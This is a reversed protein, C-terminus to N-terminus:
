RAWDIPVGDIETPWSSRALHEAAARLDRFLETRVTEHRMFGVEHRWHLVFSDAGQKLLIGGDFVGETSANPPFRGCRDVAEVITDVLLSGRAVGDPLQHREPVSLHETTVLKLILALEDDM